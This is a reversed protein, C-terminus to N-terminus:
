MKTGGAEVAGKNEKKDGEERGKVPRRQQAKRPRRIKKLSHFAMGHPHWWLLWVFHCKNGQARFEKM